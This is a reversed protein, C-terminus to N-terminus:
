LSAQDIPLRTEATGSLQVCLTEFSDWVDGTAHGKVLRDLHTSAVLMSLWSAATHRGMAAKLPAARSQWVGAGKLAADIGMGREHAEAARTGSRIEQSLSWLIPVPAVAEDRLGRLIRVARASQGALSAQVLDGISYRASDSVASLVQEANLEGTPFLLALREVEQAAALMNGEVKETILSVAERTAQLGHGALKDSLWRALKASEIPWVAITVGVKDIAKFWASSSGGRDLKASTIILLVDSAPNACYQKLVEGGTRGPKGTPLRLEIIRQEAFLSMSDAAERFAAWDNDDNAILVQREDFGSNRAHERLKDGLQMLQYPEDGHLLYIPATQRALHADLKDPYLKMYYSITDFEFGVARYEIDALLESEPADGLSASKWRALRNNNM